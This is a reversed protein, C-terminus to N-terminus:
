RTARANGRTVQINQPADSKHSLGSCVVLLSVEFFWSEHKPAMLWLGFYRTIFVGWVTRM